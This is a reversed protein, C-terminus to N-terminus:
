IMWWTLTSEKANKYIHSWPDVSCENYPLHRARHGRNPETERCGGGFRVHGNGLMEARWRGNLSLRRRICRWTCRRSTRWCSLKRQLEGVNM